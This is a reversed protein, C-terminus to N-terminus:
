ALDVPKICVKNTSSLLTRYALWGGAVQPDSISDDAALFQRRGTETSVAHVEDQVEQGLSVQQVVVIERGDPTVSIEILGNPRPLQRIGSPTTITLPGDDSALLPALVPHRAAEAPTIGRLRAQRGNDPEIWVLKDADVEETEPDVWLLGSLGDATYTLDAMAPGPLRAFRRPANSPSGLMIWTEGRGYGPMSHSSEEYFQQLYATTGDPGVAVGAADTDILSARALDVIRGSGRDLLRVIGEDLDRRSGIALWAGDPSWAISGVQETPFSVCRTGDAASSWAPQTFRIGLLVFALFLAPGVRIVQDPRPPRHALSRVAVLWIFGAPLTAPWMELGVLAGIPALPPFVLGGVAMPVVLGLLIAIGVAHIRSADVARRALTGGGLSAVVLGLGVFAPEALMEGPLGEMGDIVVVLSGAIVACSAGLLFHDQELKM